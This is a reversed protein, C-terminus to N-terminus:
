QILDLDKTTMYKVKNYLATEPIIANGKMVKSFWKDFTFDQDISFGDSYSYDIWGTTTYKMMKSFDRIVDMAPIPNRFVQDFVSPSAYLNIDQRSRIMMNTTFNVMGTLWPDDDDDGDGKLAKLMMVLSSLALYFKIESINRKMNEMDVASSELAVPNGNKDKVYIGKSPDINVGPLM